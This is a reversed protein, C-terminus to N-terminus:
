KITNFLLYFKKNHKYENSAKKIKKKQMKLIDSWSNFNNIRIIQYASGKSLSLAPKTSAHPLARKLISIIRSTKLYDNKLSNMTAGQAQRLTHLIPFRFLIITKQINTSLGVITPCAVCVRRCAWPASACM